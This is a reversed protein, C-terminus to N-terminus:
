DTRTEMIEGPRFIPGTQRAANMRALRERLNRITRQQELTLNGQRNWQDPHFCGPDYKDPDASYRCGRCSGSTRPAPAGDLHEYRPCDNKYREADTKATRQTRIM